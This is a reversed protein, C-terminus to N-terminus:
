DSYYQKWTNLMTRTDVLFSFLFLNIHHKLIFADLQQKQKFKRIHPRIWQIETYYFSPDQPFVRTLNLRPVSIHGLISKEHSQWSLPFVTDLFPQSSSLDSISTNVAASEIYAFCLSVNVLYKGRVSVKIKERM